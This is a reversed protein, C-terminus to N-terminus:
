VAGSTAPANPMRTAPTHEARAQDLWQKAYGGLRAIAAERVLRFGIMGLTAFLASTLRGRQPMPRVLGIVAGVAASIGVATYPHLVIEQRVDIRKITRGFQGLRQKLRSKEATMVDANPDIQSNTEVTEM